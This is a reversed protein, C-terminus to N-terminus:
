AEATASDIKDDRIFFTIPNIITSWLRSGACAAALRESKFGFLSQNMGEESFSRVVANKVKASAGAASTIM